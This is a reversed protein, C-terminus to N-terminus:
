SCTWREPDSRAVNPDATCVPDYPAAPPPPCRKGSCQDPHDRLWREKVIRGLTWGACMGETWDADCDDIDGCESANEYTRGDEGGPVLRLRCYSNIDSAARWSGDSKPPSAAGGSMLLAVLATALATRAVTSRRLNM